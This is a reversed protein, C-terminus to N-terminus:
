FGLLPGYYYWFHHLILGAIALLWLLLIDLHHRRAFEGAGQLAAPLKIFGKEINYLTVYWFTTITVVWVVMCYPCLANINWVSQYFLWHVFGIGFITGFQLGLWYWRKLQAGALMIVGTTIVVPFAALGIIPNPFGFANSQDSEMISGCSIVPNLDCLFTADPNKLLEVKDIMIIAAALLGISGCIVLLWPLVKGLQWSQFLKM